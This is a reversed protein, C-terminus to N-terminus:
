HGWQSSLQETTCAAIYDNHLALRQQSATCIKWSLLVCVCVCAPQFPPCAGTGKAQAGTHGPILLEENLRQGIGGDVHGVVAHSVEQLDTCAHTCQQPAQSSQVGARADTIMCICQRASASRKLRQQSSCARLPM